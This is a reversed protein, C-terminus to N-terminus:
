TRVRACVRASRQETIRRSTLAPGKQRQGRHGRPCVAACGAGPGPSEKAEPLRERAVAQPGRARRMAAPLQAGGRQLRRTGRTARAAARDDERLRIDPRRHLDPAAGDSRSRGQAPAATGAAAARPVALAAPPQVEGQEAPPMRHRRSSGVHREVPELPESVKVAGPAPSRLAGRGLGTRLGVGSPAARPFPNPAASAALDFSSSGASWPRWRWCHDCAADDGVRWGWPPGCGSASGPGPSLRLSVLGLGHLSGTSVGSFFAGVNCGFALRSAYGLLLGRSSPRRGPGSRCPRAATAHLRAAVGRGPLRRRHHRPEHAVHRRDAADRAGARCQGPARGSRPASLDAGLAAAGKAAWLGLGYSWAGPSGGAVVLNGLALAAVLAAAIWLRGPIRRRGPAAVVLLLAAVRRPGRAHGRGRRIGRLDRGARDRPRDVVFPAVRGAFSGIAFFALALLGM